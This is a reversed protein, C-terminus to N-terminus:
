PPPPPPYFQLKPCYNATDHSPSSFDQGMGDVRRNWILTTLSPCLCTPFLRQKILHAQALFRMKSRKVLCPQSKGSLGTTRLGAAGTDSPFMPSM